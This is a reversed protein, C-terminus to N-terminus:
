TDALRLMVSALVQQSSPFPVGHVTRIEEGIGDIANLTATAFALLSGCLAAMQEPTQYFGSLIELSEADNRLSCAVMAAADRSADNIVQTDSM